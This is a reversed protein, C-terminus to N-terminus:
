MIIIVTHALKKRRMIRFCKACMELKIRIKNSHRERREPIFISCLLPSIFYKSFSHIILQSAINIQKYIYIM